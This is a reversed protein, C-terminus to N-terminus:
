TFWTRAPTVVNFMTQRIPWGGQSCVLCANNTSLYIKSRKVKRSRKGRAYNQSKVYYLNDNRFHFSNKQYLYM